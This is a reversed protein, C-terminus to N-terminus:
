GGLLDVTVKGNEVSAPPDGPNQEGATEFQGVFTAKLRTGDFSIVTLQIQDDTAWARNAAHRGVKVEAYGGGCSVTVPLTMTPSLGPVECGLTLSKLSRGPISPKGATIIIGGFGNTSGATFRGGVKFPRGNIRARLGKRRGADATEVFGAVVLVAALVAFRARRSTQQVCKGGTLPGASM